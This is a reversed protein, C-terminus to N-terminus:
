RALIDRIRALTVPIGDHAARTRDEIQAGAEDAYLEVFRAYGATLFDWSLTLRTGGDVAAMTYGWRVWAGGVLWAFERGPVAAAVQSRTEWTRTPTVNRGVFWAGEQGATEPDEWWCAETQVSWEGTRTIDSVLAYVEEPTADVVVSDEHHRPADPVPSM